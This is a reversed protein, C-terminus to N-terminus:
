KWVKLNGTDNTLCGVAFASWQKLLQDDHSITYDKSMLVVSSLLLRTQDSLQTNDSTLSNLVAHLIDCSDTSVMLCLSKFAQFVTTFSAQNVHPLATLTLHFIMPLLTDNPHPHLKTVMPLLCISSCILNNKVDSDIAITSSRDSLGPVHLFLCHVATVLLSKSVKENTNTPPTATICSAITNAIDLTLQMIVPSPSTLLIRHLLELLEIILQEENLLLDKFIKSKVLEEIVNLCCQVDHLSDYTESNCLSQVAVGLLMYFTSHREDTPTSMSAVGMNIPIMSAFAPTDITGPLPDNKTQSRRSLSIAAAHLISSWNSSYYAKVSDFILNNYFTGGNSPLQSNFKAPLSIYAHDQLALIWYKDLIPLHPAILKDTHASDEHSLKIYLEAWAKLVALSELTGVADGYISTSSGIHRVKDLSTVLLQQVRKLDSIDRSVGSGLWEGCVQCAIATM